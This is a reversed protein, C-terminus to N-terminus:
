PVLLLTSRGTCTTSAAVLVSVLVREHGHSGAAVLGQELVAHAAAGAVPYTYM